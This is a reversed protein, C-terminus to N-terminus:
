RRWFCGELFLLPGIPGKKKRASLSPDTGDNQIVKQNQQTKIIEIQAIVCFNRVKYKAQLGSDLHWRKETKSEQHFLELHMVSFQTQTRMIMMILELRQNAITM